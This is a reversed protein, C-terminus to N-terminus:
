HNILKLYDEPTDVDFLTGRIKLKSQRKPYNRIIHRAGVRGDLQLLDLFYHKDFLAPVGLTEDYESVVMLSKQAQWVRIMENFYAANILPQDVLAIVIAEFATPKDLIFRVGCSLTTGMGEKWESNICVNNKNFILTAKIEDVKAGLVVFVEHINSAEGEDIVHQLLSKGKWNMLQKPTGMRKSEGAALILLAVKASM